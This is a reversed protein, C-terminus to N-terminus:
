DPTWSNSGYRAFLRLMVATWPECCVRGADIDACRRELEARQSPTLPPIAENDNDHIVGEVIRARPLSTLNELM